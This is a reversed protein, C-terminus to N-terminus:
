GQRYEAPAIAYRKLKDYFTKRPLGLAEISRRVDGGHERLTERIMAAEYRGVKEPLTMGDAQGPGPAPAPGADAARELGLVVRDAFHVLERINGPWGHTILRRHVAAGVEPVPRGFRKAARGLFHGFLVPVDERRERLPPIKLHLVNLRFYLDERFGGRASPNGLDVKTAAVVRLDINRTENTGLPTVQRTELVRLLKVQLAPPM